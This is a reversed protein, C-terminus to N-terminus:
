NYRFDAGYVWRIRADHLEKAYPFDISFLWKNESSEGCLLKMISYNVRICM